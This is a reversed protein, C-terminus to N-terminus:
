TSQGIGQFLGVSLEGVAASRSPAGCAASGFPRGVDFPYAPRRNTEVTQNPMAPSMKEVREPESRVGEAAM